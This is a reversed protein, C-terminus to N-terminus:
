AFQPIKLRRKQPTKVRCSCEADSMKPLQEMELGPVKFYFPNVDPVKLAFHHKPAQTLYEPECGMLKALTTTDNAPRAAYISGCRALAGSVQPNTIQELGQHALTLAIRQKRAQNLLDAATNEMGLFDHFEDIYVYVPKPNSNLMLRKETAQLLMALFFRGYASAMEPGLRAKNAHILIVKCQDLEELFSFRTRDANYMRRFLLDANLGELRYLIERRTQGFMKDDTIRTEMWGRIDPDLGIMRDKLRQYGGDELLQQFTVLTAGPISLVASLTYEFLVSQKSTIDSGLLASMCFKVLWKASQEATYKDDESLGATDVGTSFPNLAPPHEVSPELLVLRGRLEQAFVKLGAINPILEPQGDIVVISAKGKKVEELDALFQHQILQTKGTAPPAVIWTHTFRNGSEVPIKIDIFPLVFHLEYMEDLSVKGSRWVPYPSGYLGCRNLRNMMGTVITYPDDLMPRLPVSFEGDKSPHPIFTLFYNLAMVTCEVAGQDNRYLHELTLDRLQKNLSPALVGEQGALEKLQLKDWVQKLFEKPTM